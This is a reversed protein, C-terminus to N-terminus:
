EDSAGVVADRKARAIEAPFEAGAVVEHNRGSVTIITFAREGEELKIQTYPMPRVEEILAPDLFTTEGNVNRIELM